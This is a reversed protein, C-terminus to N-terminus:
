HRALSNPQLNGKNLASHLDELLDSMGGASLADEIANHRKCSRMNSVALVGTHLDM